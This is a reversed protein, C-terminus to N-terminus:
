AYVILAIIDVTEDTHNAISHGTEAPCILVDGPMAEVETGGDNYTPCGREVIFIESDGEHIHEGISCGPELTIRAFFRGKDLLEEKGCFHTIKVVGEGGRMHERNETKCDSSKIVM